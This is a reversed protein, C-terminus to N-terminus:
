LSNSNNKFSHRITLGLIFFSSHETAVFNLQTSNEQYWSEEDALDAQPCRMKKQSKFSLQQLIFFIHFAQFDM